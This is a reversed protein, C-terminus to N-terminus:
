KKQILDQHATLRQSSQIELSSPPLRGPHLPHSLLSSVLSMRLTQAQLIDTGRVLILLSLPAIQALFHDFM